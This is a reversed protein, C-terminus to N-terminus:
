NEECSEIYEKCENICKEKNELFDDSWIILVKYGHQEYIEKKRLDRDWIEQATINHFLVDNPKYGRKPDAHWFSGNYEIVIKKNEIIGDPFLHHKKNDIDKYLFSNFSIDYGYQKLMEFFMKEQKSENYSEKSTPVLVGNQWNERMIHSRIERQHPNLFQKLANEKQKLKFEDSRKVGTANKIVKNRYEPNLWKNKSAEACKRKLKEITKTSHKKGYFSNQEGCRTLGIHNKCYGTKNNKCLLAGCVKCYKKEM